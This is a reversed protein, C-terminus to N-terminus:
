VQKFSPRSSNIGEELGLSELGQGVPLIWCGERGGGGGGRLLM